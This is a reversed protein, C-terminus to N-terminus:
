VMRKIGVLTGQSINDDLKMRTWTLTSEHFELASALVPLHDIVGPLKSVEV